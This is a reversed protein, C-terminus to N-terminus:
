APNAKKKKKMGKAQNVEHLVDNTIDELENRKKKEIKQALQESSFVFDTSIHQLVM